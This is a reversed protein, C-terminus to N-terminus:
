SEARTRRMAVLLGAGCTVLLMAASPEPVTLVAVWAARQGDPAIGEGAIVQGDDSIATASSLRWGELQSGLGYQDALLDKIRYGRGSRWLMAEPRFFADTLPNTPDLTGVISTGDASVDLASSNGSTTELAIAESDIWVTARRTRSGLPNSEFSPIADSSGVVVTGDHSLATAISVDFGAPPTLEVAGSATWRLANHPGDPSSLGRPVPLYDLLITSADASIAVADLHVDPLNPIPELGQAANWMFPEEGVTGVVVEADASMDRAHLPGEGSMPQQFQTVVDGHHLASEIYFVSDHTVLSTSGDNSFAAVGTPYIYQNSLFPLRGLQLLESTDLSLVFASVGCPGGACDFDGAEMITGGITSGDGSIATVEISTPFYRPRGLLTSAPLERFEAGLSPAMLSITVLVTLFKMLRGTPLFTSTDPWQGVHGRIM